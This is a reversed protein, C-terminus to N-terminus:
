ANILELIDFVSVETLEHCATVCLSGPDFDPIEAFAKVITVYTGDRFLAYTTGDIVRRSFM